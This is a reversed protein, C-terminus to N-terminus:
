ASRRRLFPQREWYSLSRWLWEMPGFRFFRLWIPSWILQVGCIAAVIAIQEVREVSGFLGFGHGYFITTCIVTQAIYNTFAMRGTAALPRLFVANGCLRCVLMVIGVYGLAVLASAWFNYLGGFFFSYNVDWGHAINQQVGFAVVPLGIGLGLVIMALYFGPSRKASLVGTRFLAIGILMLGLAKFGIGFVFLLLTEFFIATMSRHPAQSLWGGRYADLEKQVIEATPLWSEDSFQQVGEEGWFEMSWGFFASIGSSIAFLLVALGILIPVPLRRLFYALFGCWAYFWLIDGYWLLHAHLLGFLGLWAMRRVHLWVASRGKAEASAAMLAIGAGFLMSFISMFKQDGLLHTFYWVTRNAGELDGYAHPNMYAAGIMSFSQINLVLIGLVAVGRLVDLSVLRDRDGVPALETTLETTLPPTVPLPEAWDPESPTQSV